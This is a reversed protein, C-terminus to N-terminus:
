YKRTRCDTLGLLFDTSVGFYDSLFIIHELSPSTVGREFRSVSMFHINMKEALAGQSIEREERLRKLRCAFAARAEKSKMM